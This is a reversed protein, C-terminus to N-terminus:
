LGLFANIVKQVESITVVGSNDLDVCAQVPKLGLFMNIASQVEAITVTGNGDCDGPKNVMVSASLGIDNAVVKGAPTSVIGLTKTQYGTASVSLNVSANLVSSLYFGNSLTAVTVSGATVKAGSIPSGTASNRVYGKLLAALGNTAVITFSRTSSETVAGYGDIAKVKWYCYSDGNQCYYGNGAPNNLKGDAIYTTAQAIGEETYVVSKFAQDTAVVLTYTVGNSSAVEQWSLPFVPSVSGQDAPGSLSFSSPAVNNALQKYVTSHAAPSIDGTQNDQTYYLLNYTGANPFAYSSNWQLGDYYLPQTILHPTVQGTGGNSSVSTIPTRIEMWAKAVRSNDSVQLWLPLSDTQTTPLIATGTVATIDAPEGLSKIGVGLTLTAALAGDSASVPLYSASGDGDDDLLPHQALTDYVGSHQALDVKRPDRLAVNSSSQVAADKFSDGRGLFNIMNDIFYEGGSYTTSTASNYISFGALSQEDAGASTIVVRGPKSLKPAFTGSYCTGIIVFRRYSDLTGSSVVSPDSELTNMWGALDDPTVTQDGLVFGTTTGHDIMFLYLPAAAAVLKDRAWSTVADQIQQKTVAQSTTSKLYNINAPLFGRKNVLNAYIADTSATHLDLLSNEAAKGTVIIAYGSQPTVPLVATAFSAALTPSGAFRAQIQYSGPRSFTKLAGTSFAGTAGSTASLVLPAPNPVAASAPPTIILAVPQNAVSTSGTSTLTGSLTSNDGARLVSPSPALSLTTASKSVPVQITFTSSVPRTQDGASGSARAYITYRDGELWAVSGTNLSWTTTGTAPIWAAATGFGGNQQLYQYGDSIQLEVKALGTGSATGSIFALSAVGAGSAPAAILASLASAPLVTLTIGKAAAPPIGNDATVLLQYGGASGPAPTGGFSGTGTNFSIGSPLAGACSFVPAPWGSSPVTYSSPSGEAFTISTVGTLLPVTNSSLLKYVSTPTAAYVTQSNAPDVALSLVDVPGIGLPLGTNFAAWNGGGNHSVFVGTGYTGAYVTQSNAPDIALAAVAAGAPLGANTTAWSAGGNGSKFVGGYRTGAYLTQSNSPDIAIAFVDTTTLGTNVAVWNAGANSSKFVGAGNAAYITQRNAPDVALSQVATTTSLGSDVAVWSAGGDSSKFVGGSGFNWTGAYLVQSNGPDIALCQIMTNTAIGTGAPTWNAGGNVSKFVGVGTGAYATQSNSPDIALSYLFNNSLGTNSASWAAVGANSSKFVGGGNSGAYVAQSHATDVAITNISAIVLGSNVAAWSTGGNSSKFIGNLTGAYITRSDAPDIALSFDWSSTLGNMVATWATGGNVSKFVGGYTAVYVTQTNGPDLVISWITTNTLGTNVVAWSGGGDGSKFIGGGTGAYVTKSNTPDIALSIVWGNVNAPGTKTWSAGGNVSKLLLGSDTGAYLIQSNVPDIALCLVSTGTLGANLATWSAGGNSSKSIGGGYSSAYLITSVIPDIALAYINTSSLGSNVATWSSGGDISKSVGSDHSASYATQSNHPDVAFATVSSSTPGTGLLSWGGGGNGSTYSGGYTGAYVTQSNAPDIALSHTEGGFPGIAQWTAAGLCDATAVLSQLMFFASFLFM